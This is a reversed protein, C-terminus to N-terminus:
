LHTGSQSEHLSFAVKITHHVTPSSTPPIINPITMTRQRVVVDLLHHLYTIIQLNAFLKLESQDFCVFVNSYARITSTHMAVENRM